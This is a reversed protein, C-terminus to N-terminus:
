HHSQALEKKRKITRQSKTKLKTISTKVIVDPTYIFCPSKSCFLPDMCASDHPKLARMQMDQKQEQFVCDIRKVMDLYRQDQQQMPFHAVTPHIHPFVKGTGQRRLLGKVWKFFMYTFIVLGFGLLIFMVM